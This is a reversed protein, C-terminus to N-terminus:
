SGKPSRVQVEVYAMEEYETTYDPYFQVIVEVESGPWVIGEAPVVQSPPANWNLSERGKGDRWPRGVLDM